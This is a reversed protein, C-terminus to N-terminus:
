QSAGRCFRIVLIWPWLVVSAPLILLRFWWSTGAAAHDIQEAGRGVFEIGICLGIALYAAGAWLVIEAVLM